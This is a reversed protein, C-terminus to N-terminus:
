QLKLGRYLNNAVVPNWMKLIRIRQNTQKHVDLKYLNESYRFSWPVYTELDDNEGGKAGGTQKQVIKNTAQWVWLVVM